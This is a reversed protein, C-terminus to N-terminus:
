FVSAPVCVFVQFVLELHTSADIHCVCVCYTRVWACLHLKCAHVFRICEHESMYSVRMKLIPPIQLCLSTSPSRAKSRVLSARVGWTARIVAIPLQSPIFSWHVRNRLSLFFNSFYYSHKDTQTNVGFDSVQCRPWPVRMTPKTVAEEFTLERAVEFQECKRGRIFARPSICM